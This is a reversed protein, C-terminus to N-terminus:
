KGSCCCFVHFINRHYYYLVVSLILVVVMGYFWLLTRSFMIRTIGGVKDNFRRPDLDYQFERSGKARKDLVWAYLERYRKETQLFFADLYWFSFTAITATLIVTAKSVEGKGLTMMVAIISVLWGKLLFSNGAMRNICNQILDIEKHLEEVSINNEKDM